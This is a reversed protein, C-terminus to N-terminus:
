AARETAIESSGRRFFGGGRRLDSRDVALDTRSELALHRNPDRGLDLTHPDFQM